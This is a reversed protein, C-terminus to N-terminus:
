DILVSIGIIIGLVIVGIVLILICLLPNDLNWTVSGIIVGIVVM